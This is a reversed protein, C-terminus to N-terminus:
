RFIWWRSTTFCCWLSRNQFSRCADAILFLLNRSSVVLIQNTIHKSHEGDHMRGVFLINKWWNCVGYFLAVNDFLDITLVPILFCMVHGVLSTDKEFMIIHKIIRLDTNFFLEQNSIELKLLVSSEQTWKEFDFLQIVFVM